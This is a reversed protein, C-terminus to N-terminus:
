QDQTKRITEPDIGFAIFRDYQADRDVEQTHVSAQNWNTGDFTENYFM